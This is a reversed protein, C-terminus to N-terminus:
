SLPTLHTHGHQRHGHTWVSGKDSKLKWPRQQAPLVERKSQYNISKGVFFPRVHVQWILAVRARLLNMLQYMSHNIAVFFFLFLFFSGYDYRFLLDQLKWIVHNYLNLTCLVDQVWFKMEFEIKNIVYLDVDRRLCGIVYLDVRKKKEFFLLDLRSHERERNINSYSWSFIM